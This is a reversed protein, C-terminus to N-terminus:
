TLTNAKNLCGWGLWKCTDCHLSNQFGGGPAQAQDQLTWAQGKSTCCRYRTLAMKQPCGEAQPVRKNRGLAEAMATVAQRVENGTGGGEM